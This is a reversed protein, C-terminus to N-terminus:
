LEEKLLNIVEHKIENANAPNGEMSNFITDIAIQLSNPNYNSTEIINETALSLIKDSSLRQDEPLKQNIEIAIMADKIDAVFLQKKMQEKSLSDFIDRNISEDEKSNGNHNIEKQIINKSNIIDNSYDISISDLKM